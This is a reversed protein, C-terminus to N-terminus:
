RAFLNKALFWLDRKCQERTDKWEDFTLADQKSVSETYVDYWKKLYDQTEPM